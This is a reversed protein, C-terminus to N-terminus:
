ANCRGRIVETVLSRTEDSVQLCLNCLHRGLRAILECLRLLLHAKLIFAFLYWVVDGQPRRDEGSVRM